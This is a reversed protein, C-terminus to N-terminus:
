WAFFLKKLFVNYFIKKLVSKCILFFSQVKVYKKRKQTIYIFFAIRELFFKPTNKMSLKNKRDFM